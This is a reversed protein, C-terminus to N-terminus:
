NVSCVFRRRIRLLSIFVSFVVCVYMCVYMDCFYILSFCRALKTHLASSLCCRSQISFFHLRHLLLLFYFRLYISVFSLFFHRNIAFQGFRLNNYLLAYQRYLASSSSTHRASPFHSHFSSTTIHAMIFHVFIIKYHLTALFFHAFSCFYHKYDFHFRRVNAVPKKTHKVFQFM